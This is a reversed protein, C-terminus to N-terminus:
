EKWYGRPLDSNCDGNNLLPLPFLPVSFNLLKSLNVCITPLLPLVLVLIGAPSPGGGGCARLYQSALYQKPAPGLFITQCCALVLMM